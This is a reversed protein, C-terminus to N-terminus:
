QRPQPKCTRAGNRTTTSGMTRFRSAAPYPLLTGATTPWGAEYVLHTRTEDTFRAPSKYDRTPDGAGQLNPSYYAFMFRSDTTRDGGDRVLNNEDYGPWGDAEFVPFILRRGDRWHNVIHYGGPWFGGPDHWNSGDPGITIWHLYNLNGLPDEVNNGVIREESNMPKITDWIEGAVMYGDGPILRNPRYILQDSPTRKSQALIPEAVWGLALLLLGGAMLRHITKSHIM